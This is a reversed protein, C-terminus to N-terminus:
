SKGRKKNSDITIGDLIVTFKPKKTQYTDPDLDFNFEKKMYIKVGAVDCKKYLSMKGFQSIWWQLARKKALKMQKKFFPYHKLCLEYDGMTDGLDKLADVISLGKEARLNILRHGFRLAEINV